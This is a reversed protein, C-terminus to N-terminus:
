TGSLFQLHSNFKLTKHFFTGLSFKTSRMECKRKVYLGAYEGLAMGTNLTQVAFLGRGCGGDYAPHSSTLFELRIFSSLVPVGVYHRDNDLVIGETYRVNKPWNNPIQGTGLM